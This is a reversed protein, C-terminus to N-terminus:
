RNWRVASRLYEWLRAKWLPDLAFDGPEAAQRQYQQKEILRLAQHTLQVCIVMQLGAATLSLDEASIRRNLSLQFRHQALASAIVALCVLTGVLFYRM